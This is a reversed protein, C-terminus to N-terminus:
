DQCVDGEGKRGEEWVEQGEKRGEQSLTPFSGGLLASAERAAALVLPTHHAIARATFRQSPGAVGLAARVRGKSDFVPASVGAVGQDLEGRSVAVGRRRTRRLARRLAEPDVLTQDTFSRKPGALVEEALGEDFALLARAGSGVHLPTALGVHLQWIVPQRTQAVALCVRQGSQVAYLAASEGTSDRLRQLVPNLVSVLDLGREAAAAWRLATVGVRYRDDVRDLLGADVLNRVLRACTSAPLGTRARLEGLSLEPQDVTFSDLLRVAKRLVLIPRGGELGVPEASPVYGRGATM